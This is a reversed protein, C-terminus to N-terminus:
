AARRRMWYFIGTGLFIFPYVYSFFLLLLQSMGSTLSITSKSVDKPRISIFDEDQLLFSVTNSFLDRAEPYVQTLQNRAFQSSGAVVLQYHSNKEEPIVGDSADSKTVSPKASSNALQPSKRVAKGQASAMFVFNGKEIREQGINKLDSEQKVDKIRVMYSETQALQTVKTEQMSQDLDMSRAFPVLIEMGGKRAFDRTIAHAENFDNIIANNRGLLQARPDDPALALLDNRVNIGYDSIMKQLKPLHSIADLMILASGGEKVYQNVIRIEEPKFDYQPGAVVVLDADEPIAMENLFSLPLAEYKQNELQGVVVDFSEPSQDKLSGEGHGMSFYVRKSKAKMIGIIANTLKEEDFATIRNERDQYKMIVTDGESIGYAIAKDPELQPDVYEVAFVNAVREYLRVLQQFKDKQVQDQFFATVEIQAGKEELASIIKETQNSLTNIGNTTLDLSKDFRPKSTLVAVGTLSLLVLVILIGSSAGYKAGKRHFAANLGKRELYAWTAVLVGALGLGIWEAYLVQPFSSDIVKGLGAVLLAIFLLIFYTPRM